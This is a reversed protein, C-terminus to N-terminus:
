LGATFGITGKFGYGGAFSTSALAEGHLAYKGDAWKYTGGLGLEGGFRQQEFSLDTGSVAVSTGDLFEYTLNAIGYVHRGATDNDYNTAVGLRGKLSDGQRLSVNAGFPDTFGDFDISSYALQAQPTLSWENGLAVKQGAELSLAYGSGRIGDGIEGVGAANLDSRLTAVQAQADIYFGSAGHWTLNAGIGYSDTTNAGDGLSSFIDASARSYQATLGGVLMGTGTEFLQGDGGIQVLATDADYSADATSAHAEVHGHAAEIRTWIAQQGAAEGELAVRRRDGVRQELTPLAVMGLLVQPYNEYVPTTPALGAARLYWDGDTPDAIGNQFLKYSHAGGIAPGALTFADADSIGDVQIIRIGDGTTQGGAGGVNIVRVQTTGITDGQVHLLDTPSSDNGLVSSLHLTGGSGLYNGTTTLTTNAAISLYVNGGNQLSALTHSYGALDLTGNTGVTHASASSLTALGGAALTGGTITTPGTYANAGTLVTRGPGMQNVAGAGLMLPSFLFTADTHNFNVVGAGLGFQIKGASLTGAKTAAQGTGGGINITGASGATAAVDVTGAATVAGGNAITLTGQRISNNATTGGGVVFSNAAAGTVLLQSGAGSVVTTGVADKTVNRDFAGVRFIGTEVTGGNLVALSGRTLLFHKTDWRSGADSVLIDASGGRDATGTGTTFSAVVGVQTSDGTFNAGNRVNVIAQGQDVRLNGELRSGADTTNITATADTAGAITMVGTSSVYAAGKEINLTAGTPTGLRLGTGDTVVTGAGTVTVLSSGSSPSASGYGNGFSVKAGDKFIIQGGIAQVYSNYASPGGKISLIGDGVKLLKGTANAPGTIRTPGDLTLEAGAAVNITVDNNPSTLTHGGTDITLNKTVQPLANGAVSFSGTLTITSSADGSANAQNIAAVLETQNSATFNAANAAGGSATVVLLALVMQSVGNACAFAHGASIKTSGM